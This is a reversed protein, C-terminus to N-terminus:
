FHHRSPPTPRARTRKPVKSARERLLVFAWEFLTLNNIPALFCYVIGSYAFMGIIIRVYLADPLSVGIVYFIVVVLGLLLPIWQMLGLGRIRFGQGIIQPPVQYYGGRQGRQKNSNLAM